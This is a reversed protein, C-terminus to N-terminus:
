ILGFCLLLGLIYMMVGILRQIFVMTMKKLFENAIVVGLFSAIIATWILTSHAEVTAFEFTLGYICIRIFDVMAAVAANTAVFRQESLNGQVLFASRFAGQHGTLGGFFGSLVGGFPLGFKLLNSNKLFPWQEATAFIVLLLGAVLKVPSIYYTSGSLQYEALAPLQSLSGLLLAGPIAAILAPVGFTVLVRTDVHRWLMMLKFVKNLLHVIATIAIAIPVPLFIAVVPM